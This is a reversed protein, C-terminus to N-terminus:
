TEYNRINKITSKETRAMKGEYDKQFSVNPKM